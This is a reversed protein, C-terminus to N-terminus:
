DGFINTPVEDDTKPKEAKAKKVKKVYPDATTITMSIHAYIPEGALTDAIHIDLGGNVNEAYESLVSSDLVSKLKATTQDAVAKRVKASVNGKENLWNIKQM